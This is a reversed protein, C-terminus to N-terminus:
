RRCSFRVTAHGLFVPWRPTVSVGQVTEEYGSEKKSVTVIDARWVEDPEPDFAFGPDTSVSLEPAFWGTPPLDAPSWRYSVTVSGDAEFVYTKELSGVGRSRLTVAVRGEDQEVDVDFPEGGWSRAPTYDADHYPGPQTDASLVREVGIARPDLDVPPLTELSLGEELEHISPMAEAELNRPPSDPVDDTATHAGPATRHYSERRRTLVDAYNVGSRFDTLEVLRGGHAPQVLASFVSSHVWVDEHGDGDVDLRDVGIGEDARLFGEATALNAWTANRLHRLYLGGFVGHWYPDNCQARGIARRADEPDGRERCLRSLLWAKKHM